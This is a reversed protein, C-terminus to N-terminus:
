YPKIGSSIYKNILKFVTSELPVIAFVLAFPFSCVPQLEIDFADFPDCSPVSVLSLSNPVLASYDASHTPAVPSPFSPSPPIEQFDDFIQLNYSASLPDTM